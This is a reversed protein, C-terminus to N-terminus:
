SRLAEIRFNSNATAIRTPTPSITPEIGVGVDACGASQELLGPPQQDVMALRGLAAEVAASL